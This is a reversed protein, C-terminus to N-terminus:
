NSQRRLFAPIELQDDEIGKAAPARRQDASQEFVGSQRPAPEGEGKKGFGANTLREILSQRKKETPASQERGGFGPDITRQMIPPFDNV